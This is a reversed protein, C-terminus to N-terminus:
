RSQDYMHAAADGTDYVGPAVIMYQCSLNDGSGPLVGANFPIYLNSGSDHLYINAKRDSTSEPLLSSAPVVYFETTVETGAPSGAPITISAEANAAPGNVSDYRLFRFNPNDSILQLESGSRTVLLLRPSFPEGDTDRGAKVAVYADTWTDPDDDEDYRRYSPSEVYLKTELGSSYGFAPTSGDWDAATLLKAYLNLGLGGTPKSFVLTYTYQHGSQWTCDPVNVTSHFQMNDYTYIVTFNASPQEPILLPHGAQYTKEREIDDRKWSDQTDSFVPSTEAATNSTSRSTPAPTMPVACAGAEATLSSWGAELTNARNDVTFTGKTKLLINSETVTEPKLHQALGAENVFLIGDLKFKYDSGNNEIFAMDDGTFKVNFVLQAQAHRLTLLATGSSSGIDNAAAYMLDMQSTYTEVDKFTVRSVADDEDFVPKWVTGNEFASLDKTADDSDVGYCLVDLKRGGLPLIIERDKVKWFNGDKKEMPAGAPKGAELFLSPVEVAGAADKQTAALFLKAHNTLADGSFEGGKTYAGPAVQLSLEAPAQPQAAPIRSCAPALALLGLLLIKYTKSM